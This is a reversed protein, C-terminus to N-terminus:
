SNNVSTSLLKWQHIIPYTKRNCTKMKELMTIQRAKVMHFEQEYSKDLYQQIRTRDDIMSIRGLFSTLKSSIELRLQHKKWRNNHIRDWVLEQELRRTEKRTRRSHVPIKITLGPSVLKHNRCRCLITLHNTMRALKQNLKELQKWQYITYLGYQSSILLRFKRSSSQHNKDNLIKPSNDEDKNNNECRKPKYTRRGEEPTQRVRYGVQIWYLVYNSTEHLNRLKVFVQLLGFSM